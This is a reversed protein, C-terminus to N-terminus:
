VGVLDGYRSRIEDLEDRSVGRSGPTDKPEEGHFDSGGTVALGYLEAAEMAQVEDLLSHAPHYVEIGGLGAEVLEPVAEFNGYLGPHALVALGGAGVVAAVAEAPDAYEIPVCAFRQEGSADRGFLMRYLARPDGDGYGGEILAAVVHQKYVCASEGANELVTEWDLEFGRERIRRTAERSAETRRERVPLCFEELGEGKPDPLLGLVHLKRKRRRDYASIEVGPIVTIGLVRGMAAAERLGRTTDHDTLALHSVGNRLALDLLEEITCLGDSVTSHSHLDVPWV